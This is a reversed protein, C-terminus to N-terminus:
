EVDGAPFPEVEPAGEGPTCVPERAHCAVARSPGTTRLAPRESACRVSALRCERRYACGRGDDEGAGPDVASPRGELLAEAYPHSPSRLVADAPGTEVLRGRHLVAVRNAVRHVLGPEHAVLLISLGQRERLTALLDAVQLKVAADLSSMPEDAVLLDPRTALARALAVRQREGGSLEHPYRSALTAPLDVESLLEEVWARAGSAEVVGHTTAPEAIAPGVRQRPDLSGWPDQFVLQVRRRERRLAAGKLALWDLGDLRVSGSSAPLLRTLVRTLTTKGSGSEGLVGLVEGRDLEFSVDSLAEIPGDAEPYTASLGRVHLLPAASL